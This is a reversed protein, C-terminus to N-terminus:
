WGQGFPIFFLGSVGFNNTISRNVIIHIPLYSVNPDMAKSVGQIVLTHLPNIGIFMSADKSETQSISYHFTFVCMLFTLVIM